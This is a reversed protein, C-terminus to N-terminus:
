IIIIVNKTLWHFVSNERKKKEKLISDAALLFM